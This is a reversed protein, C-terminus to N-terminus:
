ARKFSFKMTGLNATLLGLLVFVSGLIHNFYLIENNFIWGVILAIIPTIFAVISLVVINIRKLLWYYSSFSIVSGFLALFLISLIAEQSFNLHSTDEILLAIPTMFIGTIAMPIFNITLPNIHHGYKKVGVAVVAQMFGSLVIALMGWFYISLDGQFQDSFIIVIGGFGLLMGLIKFLGIKDSKLFIYSFLAIFFPYVGFLVAALGSPVFQEGWYVLGFPIMFSFFGMVLYLRVAIKDLQLKYGKILMIIYIIVSAVIFRIGASLFPTLDNLSIRIAFWTTGWILCVLIYLVAVKFKNEM